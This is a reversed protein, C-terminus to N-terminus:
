VPKDRESKLELYHVSFLCDTDLWTKRITLGTSEVLDHFSKETYKYSNETHISEGKTFSIARNGVRVIHDLRSVLHMEIRRKSECYFAYHEFNDTKFNAGVLSNVNDLINLNFTSTVGEKDNYARELLCKSKHLDVGILMGGDQNLWEVQGRLFEKAHKPTMNGLTSGPYFVVRKGAPLNSPPKENKTFDACVAHVYLWPFESGLRQASRLLFDAAIDMPVYARPKVEDLLLRVKESSGSGPEIIVAEKGCYDAIEQAKDSLILSEIRSPYYEEQKTILEFLESGLTDYFYKSNISKRPQALGHYIEDNLDQEQPSQNKFVVNELGEISVSRAHNSLVSEPM